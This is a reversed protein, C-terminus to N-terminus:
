NTCQRGQRAFWTIILKTLKCFFGTHFEVFIAVLHANLREFTYLIVSDIFLKNRCSLWAMVPFAAHHWQLNNWYMNFKVIADYMRNGQWLMAKKNTKTQLSCQIMNWFTILGLFFWDSQPCSFALDSEIIVTMMIWRCRLLLILCFTCLYTHSLM